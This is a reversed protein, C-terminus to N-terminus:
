TRRALIVYEGPDKTVDKPFVDAVRRIFERPLAAIRRRVEPLLTWRGTAAKLLYGAFSPYLLFDFAATVGPSVIPDVRDVAFGEGRLLDRWKADDYLHVHHFQKDLGQRYARALHGLGVTELTRPVPLQRTWHPTPVILVFPAGPALASHITRFAGRIDPVHELSCNAIASKFYKKPLDTDTISGCILTSYAATAQARRIETANIDIGWVQREPYALRAFIGDGCGVDLIPEPLDVDRIAALRVCERLALAAPAFAFYSDFWELGLEPAGDQM